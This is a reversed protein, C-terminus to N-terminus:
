AALVAVTAYYMIWIDAAGAVTMQWFAIPSLLFVLTAILGRELPMWNRALSYLAAASFLGGLFILGLSIHDSGLAMGVAILMHSQGTGFSTIIDYLPRFGGHLWLAPVTFHYHLADSGTLPAMAMLSDLMLVAAITWTTLFGLRSKRAESYFNRAGALLESVIKWDRGAVVAMAGLLIGMVSRLSGEALLAFAVVQVAAFSIGAAILARELASPVIVGIMRLVRAGFAIAILAIVLVAALWGLTSVFAM